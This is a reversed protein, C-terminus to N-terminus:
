KGNDPKDVLHPKFPDDRHSNFNENYHISEDNTVTGENSDCSGIEAGCNTHDHHNRVFQNNDGFAVVDQQQITMAIAISALATVIALMAKQKM